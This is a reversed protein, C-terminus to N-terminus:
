NEKRAIPQSGDRKARALDIASRSTGDSSDLSRWLSFDRPNSKDYEDNAIREKTSNELNLNALKGYDKSKTIDFYIGDTIEYTFGGEELKKILEIQESEKQTITEM